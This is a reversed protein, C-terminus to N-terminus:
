SIRVAPQVQFRKPTHLLFWGSFVVNREVNSAIVLRQRGSDMTNIVLVADLQNAGGVFQRLEVLLECEGTSSFDPFVPPRTKLYKDCYRLVNPTYSIEIVKNFLALDMIWSEQEQIMIRLNRTCDEIVNGNRGPCYGFNFPLLRDRPDDRIDQTRHAIDYLAGTINGLESHINELEDTYDQHDAVTVHVGDRLEDVIKRLQDEM